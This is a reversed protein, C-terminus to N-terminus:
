RMIEQIAADRQRAIKKFYDIVGPIGRIAEAYLSGM